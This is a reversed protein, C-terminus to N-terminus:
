LSRSAKVIAKANRSEFISITRLVYWGQAWLYSTSFLHPLEKSDSHTWIVFRRFNQSYSFWVQDWWTKTSYWLIGGVKFVNFYFLSILRGMMHMYWKAKPPYTTCGKMEGVEVKPPKPPPFFQGFAGKNPIVDGIAWSPNEEKWLWKTWVVRSQYMNM